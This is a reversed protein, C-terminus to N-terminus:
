SSPDRRSSMLAERRAAIVENLRDQDPPFPAAERVRSRWQADANLGNLRALDMTEIETLLEAIPDLWEPEQSGLDAGRPDQGAWIRDVM